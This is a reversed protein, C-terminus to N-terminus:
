RPLQLGVRGPLHCHRSRRSGGSLILERGEAVMAGWEADAAVAGWDWSASRRPSSSRTGFDMTMLVLAQAVSNPLFTGILVRLESMGLQGHRSVFERNKLPCCRGRALRAYPPEVFAGHAMSRGNHQSNGREGPSPMAAASPGLMWFEISAM